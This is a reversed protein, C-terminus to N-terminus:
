EGKYAKLVDEFSLSGQRILKPEGTSLDVITSPSSKECKFDVIYPIEGKFIDFVGQADTLPPQGSKNASPVLLPKGVKTIFERLEKLGAIRIGIAPSKLTVHFPLGEQPKLLLTLPGPVFKAIVRRAGEDLVAFKDFDFNDGGMLTFPKDPPRKKTAVLRDFAEKSDYICGLGYVTETPFAIVQGDQLAKIAEKSTFSVIKTDM